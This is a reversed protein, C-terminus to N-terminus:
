EERRTSKAFWHHNALVALQIAMCFYLIAPDTRPGDPIIFVLVALCSFLYTGILWYYYKM